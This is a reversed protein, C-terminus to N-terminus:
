DEVLSAELSTRSMGCRADARLVFDEPSDTRIVRLTAVGLVVDDEDTDNDSVSGITGDGDEDADAMVERIALNMGAEAAYFARVSDLRYTALMQDHRVAMLSTVLVVEGLLMIGVMAVIAIGRRLHIRSEDPASVVLM